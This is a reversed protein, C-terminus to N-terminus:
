RSFFLPLSLEKHKLKRATLDEAPDRKLVAVTRVHSVPRILHRLFIRKYQINLPMLYRGKTERKYLFETQGRNIEMCLLWKEILLPKIPHARSLPAFFPKVNEGWKKFYPSPPIYGRKEQMTNM